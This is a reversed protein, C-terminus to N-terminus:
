KDANTTTAESAQCHIFRIPGLCRDITMFLVSILTNIESVLNAVKSYFTKLVNLVYSFYKHLQYAGSLGKLSNSM